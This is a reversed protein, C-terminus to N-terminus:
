GEVRLFPLSSVNSDSKTEFGLIWIQTSYKEIVGYDYM